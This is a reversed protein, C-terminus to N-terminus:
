KGERDDFGYDLERDTIDFNDIENEVENTSKQKMNTRRNQKRDQENM